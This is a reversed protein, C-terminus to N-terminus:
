DSIIESLYSLIKFFCGIGYCTWYGVGVNLKAGIIAFLVISM